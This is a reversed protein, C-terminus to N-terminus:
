LLHTKIYRGMSYPGAGRILYFILLVLIIISFGLEGTQVNFAMHPMNIFFVAGILVPIQLICFLRTFMGILIFFGGLLHIYPIYYILFQQMNQFRSQELIIALQQTHSLFGIGKFFLMVGLAIRLLLIAAPYITNIRNEMQHAINM